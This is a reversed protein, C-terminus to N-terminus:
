GVRRTAVRIPPTRGGARRKHSNSRRLFDQMRHGGQVIGIEIVQRPGDGRQERARRRAAEKRQRDPIVDERTVSGVLAIDRAEVDIARRAARQDAPNRPRARPPEAAEGIIVAGLM